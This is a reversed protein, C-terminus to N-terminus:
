LASIGGDEYQSVKKTVSMMRALALIIAVIGDIKEASKAKSPKLNGSADQEVAVNSLMWNLVPNDPHHLTEERVRKEFDKTANTISLFGTRVYVVELGDDELEAALQTANWPDICVEKIKVRDALNNIDKRITAYDVVGGRAHTVKIFTDAWADLRTMNQKVRRTLMSDPIWFMPLTKIDLGDYWCLAGGVIDTTTALDLGLWCKVKRRPKVIERACAAWMDQPIWKTEQRTWLNLRLRKYNNESAPIDIAGKVAEEFERKQLTTGYSPNAKAFTAEAKWDDAEEAEYICAQFSIDIALGDRIKRAREWQTQCVSTPDYVGATTIWVLLPQRRSAFGYQLVNWLKWDPQTHLEDFLLFHINLGDKTPVDSSLAKYFARHHPYDMEKKAERLHIRQTLAKSSKVMNAAENYIISAQDKSGAASYVEAGAEGDSTLGYLSLGSLLTSKGNKKPIAIGLTRIRRSGDPMKWGFTPAIADLWQWDLLEFQKDAFQGKSHRLFKTFFTRVREAAKLDFYCGADVAAEDSKTRVWKDLNM